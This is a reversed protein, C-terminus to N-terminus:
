PLSAPIGATRIFKTLYDGSAEQVYIVRARGVASVIITGSNVMIELMWSLADEFRAAVDSVTQDVTLSLNIVDCDQLTQLAKVLFSASISKLWTEQRESPRWGVFHLDIRAKSAAILAVATGHSDSVRDANDNSVRLPLNQGQDIVTGHWTLQPRQPLTLLLDEDVNREVIGLTPTWTQPEDIIQPGVVFNIPPKPTSELYIFPVATIFPMPKSFGTRRALRRVHRRLRRALAVEHGHGCSLLWTNPFAGLEFETRREDLSERTLLVEKPTSIEGLDVASLAKASGLGWWQATHAVKVALKSPENTATEVVLVEGPSIRLQRQRRVRVGLSLVNKLEDWVTDLILMIRLFLNQPEELDAKLM